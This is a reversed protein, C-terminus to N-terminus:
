GSHIACGEASEEVMSDKKLGEWARCFDAADLGPLEAAIARFLSQRASKGAALHRVIAGRIQRLSGEFRSQRSYSASKRNPNPTIKKLAAGYDMLAYSWLRPNKGTDGSLAKELIPLLEADGVKEADQFYFHILAARINTEIFISPENWAFCAIAGATYTGIGPLADLEAVARPVKGGCDAAIKKACLWLNKGRRNYGLGSWERLVEELGASALAAPKPWKTLWRNWYGLVRETQTQQLMFESVLVGWARRKMTRETAGEPVRWPFERGCERYNELVIKKFQALRM